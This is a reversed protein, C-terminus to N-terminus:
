QKAKLLDRIETLLEEQKSVVPAAAKEEKKKFRLFLRIFFFLALAVLLFDVVSQLFIGYKVTAEGFTFSLKTFNVGGIILGIFPMLMDNVLSTVIKGFATGLIVAMALDVINGKFAFKKFDKWM